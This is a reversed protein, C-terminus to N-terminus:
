GFAEAVAGHLELRLEDVGPHSRGAYVRNTLLAVVLDRDPDIALSTGTFGSHGYARPGFPSLHDTPQVQWGLGRAAGLGPIQDSVATAWFRDLRLRPDQRLWAVGFRAVDHVSAFQGAHGAVGGLGAANEDEVEGWCRRGRWDDDCSTPAIGDRRRGARVPAYTLTGLALRDRVLTRMAEDLPLGLVRSVAEGLLMYGLDSYHFEEGPRSVFGYDCIAAFGGARREAPTVPDPEDPPPPVPGTERFVSRWPALGGTHTLLQKFTVSAPDVSWAARGEPTPLLRRSLPEQGGDVGRPGSSGFEPLLGVVPDDVGVRFDNALRLFATATFLKSLSALDFLTSLAAPTTESEPDLWGASAEFWPAGSQWVSVALAPAVKPVAAGIIAEIRSRAAPGLKSVSVHHPQETV